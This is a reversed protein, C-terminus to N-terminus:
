KSAAVMGSPMGAVKLGADHRRGNAEELNEGRKFTYSALTPFAVVTAFDGNM